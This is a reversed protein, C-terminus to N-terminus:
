GGSRLLSLVSSQLGLRRSVMWAMVLGQTASATTTALAAGVIGLRPILLANLVVNLSAAVVLVRAAHNENGTMNLVTAAPGSATTLVGGVALVLMTAQAVGFGRGFLGLLESGAVALVALTAVSPGLMWPMVGTLLEQIEQMRGGANLEALMPAILGAVAAHFFTVLIGTRVAAHYHAADAPTLYAGVMVIDTYTMFAFCADTLLLPAATRFWTRPDYRASVGRLSPRLRRGFVLAQVVLGVAFSALSLAVASSAPLTSGLGACVLVVALMLTPHLIQSPAYGIGVWGFARGVQAGLSVLGFVPLGILAITLPAVFAATIDARVSHLVLLGLLAVMGGAALTVATAIRLYGRVHAWAGAAAYEALFRVGGVNLGLSLPLALMFLWSIAYAYAGYEETGMTRALAVILLYALLSATVRIALILGAGRLLTGLDDAGAVRGLIARLSQV